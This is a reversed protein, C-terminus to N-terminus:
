TGTGSGPRLALSELFEELSEFSYGAVNRLHDPTGPLLPDYSRTPKFYWPGHQGAYIVRAERDVVFLRVPWASWRSNVSDSMTDVLIPFEFHEFSALHQAAAVRNAFNVPAPIVFNARGVLPAYGGAPHAEQIYILFFNVINKFRVSMQRMSEATDHSVHCSFSAFFLVAPKEACIKRLNAVEGTQADVLSFDPAQEGLKPANKTRANVMSQVHEYSM